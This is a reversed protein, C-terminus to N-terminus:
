GPLDSFSLDCPVFRSVHRAVERGSRDRLGCAVVFHVAGPILPREARWIVVHGDPSVLFRGPVPGEQDEVRFSPGGLSEADLPRSLRAVVPADRFVCTAGDDPDVRVVQAPGEEVPEPSVDVRSRM